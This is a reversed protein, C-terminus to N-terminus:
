LVVCVGPISVFDQDSYSPIVFLLRSVRGHLRSLCSAPCFFPGHNKEEGHRMMGRTSKWSSLGEDAGGGDNAGGTARQSLAM